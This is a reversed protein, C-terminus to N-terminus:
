DTSPASSTLHIISLPVTACSSTSISTLLQSNSLFHITQSQQTSPPNTSLYAPIHNLRFPPYFPHLFLLPSTQFILLPYLHSAEIPSLYPSIPLHFISFVLSLQCFFCFSFFPFFLSLLPYFLPFFYQLLYSHIYPFVYYIYHIFVLTRSHYNSLTDMESISLWASLLHPWIPYM